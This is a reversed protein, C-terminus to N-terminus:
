KAGGFMGALASLDLGGPAGAGAGSAGFISQLQPLLKELKAAIKPNQFHKFAASFGNQEVDQLAAAFEPDTALDQLAGTESLGSAVKNVLDPDSDLLKGTVQLSRTQRLQERINQLLTPDSSARREAEEFAAIADNIRNLAALCQGKRYYAKTYNPDRTIAAEADELASEYNTMNIKAIARNLWYIANGDNLEIAKTYSEIAKSYNAAKLFNNGEVKFEEARAPDVPAKPASPTPQQQGLGKAFVEPLSLGKNKLSHEKAESSDLQIGFTEQLCNLSIERSSEDVDKLGSIYELIAIRLAKDSM